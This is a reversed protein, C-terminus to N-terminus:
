IGNGFELPLKIITIPVQAQAWSLDMKPGLGLSSKKTPTQEQQLKVLSNKIDFIIRRFHCSGLSLSTDMKSVLELKPTKKKFEKLVM